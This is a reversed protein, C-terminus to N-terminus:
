RCDDETETARPQERCTSASCKHLSRIASCPFAAPPNQRHPKTKCYM